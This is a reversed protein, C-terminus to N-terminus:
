GHQSFDIKHYMRRFARYDKTFEYDHNGEDIFDKGAQILGEPNKRAIERIVLMQGPRMKRFARFAKETDENRM